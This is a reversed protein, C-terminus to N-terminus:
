ISTVKPIVRDLNSHFLKKNMFCCFSSSSGKIFAFYANMNQPINSSIKINKLIFIKRSIKSEGNEWLMM